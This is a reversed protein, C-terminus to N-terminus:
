EQKSYLEFTEVNGALGWYFSCSLNEWPNDRATMGVTDQHIMLM